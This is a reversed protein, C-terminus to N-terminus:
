SDYYNQCFITYVKMAYSMKEPEESSNFIYNQLVDFFLSFINIDEATIIVRIKKKIYKITGFYDSIHINSLRPIIRSTINQILEIWELSLFDINKISPINHQDNGYLIIEEIRKKIKSNMSLIYYTRFCSIFLSELQLVIDLNIKLRLRESHIDQNMNVGKMLFLTESIEKEDKTIFYQVNYDKIISEKFM